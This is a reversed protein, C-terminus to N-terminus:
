RTRITFNTSSKELKNLEYKKERSLQKCIKVTIDRVEAKLVDWLTRPDTNRIVLKKQYKSILQNIIEKYEENELIKSNLKYYGRGRSEAKHNIKLSIARHDTFFYHGAKDAKVIRSRIDASILFYDIRNAINNNNKRRWTYQRLNTKMDRLIDILKHKKILTKM